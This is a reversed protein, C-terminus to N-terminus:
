GIMREYVYGAVAVDEIGLGVSKFLTVGDDVWEARADRLDEVRNWDVKALILDGAEVKCADASDAVIRSARAVLEDPVERRLAHNSGVAAVVAGNQVWAADLVPERANTATVVVDAGRVADEATDCNRRTAPTRTYIRVEDIDPRVCRIADIQSQAQFGGGIIAATRADPNSLRKVALGTAAGTRIQGLWNADFSALPRGTGREFLYFWFTAGNKGSSYFKTGYYKGTWGAMSHLIAGDPEILRRRVQNGGQGGQWADFATELLRVAERM